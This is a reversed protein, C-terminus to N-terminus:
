TCAELKFCPLAKYLSERLSRAPASACAYKVRDRPGFAGCANSMYRREKVVKRLNISGIENDTGASRDRSSTRKRRIHVHRNDSAGIRRRASGHRREYHAYTPPDQFSESTIARGSLTLRKRQHIKQYM